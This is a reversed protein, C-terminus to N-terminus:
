FCILSLNSEDQTRRFVHVSSCLATNAQWLWRIPTIQQWLARSRGIYWRFKRCLVFVVCFPEMSEGFINLYMVIIWLKHVIWVSIESRIQSFAVHNKAWELMHPWQCYTACLEFRLDHRNVTVIIFKPLSLVLYYSAGDQIAKWEYKMLYLVVFPWWGTSSSIGHANSESANYQESEPCARWRQMLLSLDSLVLLM